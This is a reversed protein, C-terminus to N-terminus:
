PKERMNDLRAYLGDVIKRMDFREHAYEKARDSMKKLEPDACLKVLSKAFDNVDEIKSVKGCRGGDICDEYADIDSVAIACGSFLAEAIVNPTGGELSSPLAFIKAKKFEGALVERDDIRGLFTVRDKLHPYLEFYRQIFPKFSEEVDGALRLKWEPLAKAIYAFGLLLVDTLKQATGLRAATFIVNEKDEFRCDSLNINYFDYYGNLVIDIKRHWKETLHEAMATCSTAMIDTNEIFWKYDPDCWNIKDMWYSNADLGCYILGEPNLKKYFKAMKVCIPYGGRLILLDINKANKNLYELKVEGNGTELPVLNMGEIHKKNSYGTMDEPFGVMATTMGHDKYLLYPILGCDKILEINSWYRLHPMITVATKLANKKKIKKPLFYIITKKLNNEKYERICIRKEPAIKNLILPVEWLDTVTKNVTFEFSTDEKSINERNEIIYRVPEDEIRENGSLSSSEEECSSELFASNPFLRYASVMLFVSKSREDFLTEYAKDYLEINERLEALCSYYTAPKGDRFNGEMSFCKLVEENMNFTKAFFHLINEIRNDRIFTMMSTRDKFISKYVEINNDM